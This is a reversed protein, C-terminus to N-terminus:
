RRQRFGRMRSLGAIALLGAGLGFQSSPEPVSSSENYVEFEYLWGHVMQTGVINLGGNDSSYRIKSGTVSAFSYIDSDSYGANEGEEHMTGYLRAFSISEWAAGDWYDLWTTLPTWAVGHHWIIVENFTTPQGFDITAQRVGSGYTFALGHAWNSYSMLGDVIEWPYSGGGWGPDSQLPSPYGSASTNLALDVPSAQAPVAVLLMIALGLLGILAANCSLLTEGKGRFYIEM